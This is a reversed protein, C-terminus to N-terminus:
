PAARRRARSPPARTPEGTAAMAATVARAADDPDLPSERPWPALLTTLVLKEFETGFRAIVREPDPCLKRDAALGFQVAGSYSIISVGIGIDGSQPVWVMMSEIPAGAMFLAHQPGPV